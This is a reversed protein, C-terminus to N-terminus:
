PACPACNTMWHKTEGINFNDAAREPSAFRVLSVVVGDKALRHVLMM